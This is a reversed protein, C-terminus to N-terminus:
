IKYTHLHVVHGKYKDDHWKRYADGGILLMSRAPLGCVVDCM